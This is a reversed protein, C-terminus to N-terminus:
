EALGKVVLEGYRGDGAATISVVRDPGTLHVHYTHVGGQCTGIDTDHDGLRTQAAGPAVGGAIQCAGDDYTTRWDRYWVESFAGSRLRVVNVIALDESTSSGAKVYLGVAMAEIDPGLNGERAIEIATPDDPRRPQGDISQPLVDLLSADVAVVSTTASSAAPSFPSAPANSTATSPPSAPKCASISVGASLIAAGIVALWVRRSM